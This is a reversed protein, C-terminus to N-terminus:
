SFISVDGDVLIEGQSDREGALLAIGARMGIYPCRSGIRGRRIIGEVDRELLASPNSIDLLLHPFQSCM